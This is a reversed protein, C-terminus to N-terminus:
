ILAYTERLQPRGKQSRTVAFATDSRLSARDGTTKATGKHPPPKVTPSTTTAASPRSPRSASAAHAAPPVVLLLRYTQSVPASITFPSTGHPIPRRTTPSNNSATQAIPGSAVANCLAIVVAVAWALTSEFAQHLTLALLNERAMHKCFAAMACISAAAWARNRSQPEAARAAVTVVRSRTGLESGNDESLLVCSSVRQLCDQTKADAQV